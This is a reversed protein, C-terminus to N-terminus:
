AKPLAKLAQRGGLWLGLRIILINLGTVGVAIAAIIATSDADAQLEALLAPDAVFSVAALAASIATAVLGCILAVRWARGSQPAAKERTVWIQATSMAAVFTLIVGMAPNDFDVLYTILMLLVALGCFLAAFIGVLSLTTVPKAETQVM